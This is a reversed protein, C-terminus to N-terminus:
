RSRFPCRPPDSLVLHAKRPWPGSRCLPAPCAYSRDDAAFGAGRHIQYVSTRRERGRVAGVPTDLCAYSRDDAAFRAGRHIRYFSTRSERGLVAGVSPTPARTPATTPQSVPVATSRISRPAGKAAM